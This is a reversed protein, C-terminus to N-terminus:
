SEGFLARLLYRLLVFSGVLLAVLCFMIAAVFLWDGVQSRKASPAAVSAHSRLLEMNKLNAKWAVDFADGVLPIAGVAYDIAVNLAMRLMTVRPVGYRAAASLIYFSVLTTVTDGIGPVLGIIADLGVRWETGPIRFLSDLWRSLLAIAPDLHRQDDPQYDRVGAQTRGSRV